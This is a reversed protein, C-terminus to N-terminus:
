SACVSDSVRNGTASAAGSIMEVKGMVQPVPIAVIQEVAIAWSIVERIIEMIQARIFM